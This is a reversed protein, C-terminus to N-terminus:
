SMPDIPGIFNQVSEIEEPISYLSGESNTPSLSKLRERFLLKQKDM